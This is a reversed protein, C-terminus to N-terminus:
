MTILNVFLNNVSMLVQCDDVLSTNASLKGRTDDPLIYELRVALLHYFLSFARFYMSIDKGIQM